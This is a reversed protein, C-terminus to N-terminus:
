LLDQEIKPMEYNAFKSSNSEMIDAIVGNDQPPEIFEVFQKKFLHHLMYDLYKRVQDDFEILKIEKTVAIQDFSIVKLENIKLVM